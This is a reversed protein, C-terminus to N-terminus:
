FNEFFTIKQSREHNESLSPCFNKSFRGGFDIYHQVDIEGLQACYKMKVEEREVM